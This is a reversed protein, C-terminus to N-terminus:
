SFLCNTNRHTHRETYIRTHMDIMKRTGKKGRQRCSSGHSGKSTGLSMRSSVQVRDYRYLEQEGNMEIALVKNCTTKYISKLKVLGALQSAPQSVLESAIEIWRRKKTLQLGCVTNTYSDVHAHIQAGEIIRLLLRFFQISVLFHKIDYQLPIVVPFFDILNLARQFLM